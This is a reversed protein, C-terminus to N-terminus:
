EVQKENTVTITKESIRVVSAYNSNYSAGVAFRYTETGLYPVSVTASLKKDGTLELKYGNGYPTWMFFEPYTVGTPEKIMLFYATANQVSDALEVNIKKESPLYELTTLEVSSMRKTTQFGLGLTETKGNLGIVTLPYYNAPISDLREAPLYSSNTLEWTLDNVKTFAFNKGAVNVSASALGNGLLRVQPTFTGDSNQLVYPYKVGVNLSDDTKLCSTMGMVLLVALACMKLSM